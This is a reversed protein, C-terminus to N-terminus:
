HEGMDDHSHPIIHLNITDNDDSWQPCSDWACQSRIFPVLLLIVLLVIM